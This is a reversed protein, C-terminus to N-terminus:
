FIKNISTIGFTRDIKASRDYIKRLSQAANPGFVINTSDNSGDTSANLHAGPAQLKNGLDM